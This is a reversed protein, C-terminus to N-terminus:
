VIVPERRVTEFAKGLSIIRPKVQDAPGLDMILVHDHRDVIAGDLLQQLEALRRRSLRCQFVSLQVWEGYGKLLKHVHRLRKDDCIDYTILYLHEDM